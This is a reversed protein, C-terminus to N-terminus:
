IMKRIAKVVGNEKNSKAIFRAHKKVGEPANEMAYSYHANQLMEVDNFYDGFAMTEEPTINLKKQIYKMAEGKSAKNNIIDLWMEGSIIVSLRDKYLPYLVKNSNAASGKFDCISVKLIDDDVNLLDDVVECRAYFIEVIENFKKYDKEIYASKKGCLVVEAGEIKRGTEVIEKVMDWELFCSYLEKSQHVVFTGNEAIFVIEDKIKQLDRALTYYQRGSAAAFVIDKSKLTKYMDYFEGPIKGSEDLLTGDMDSAILKIM